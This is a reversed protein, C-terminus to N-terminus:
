QANGGHVGVPTIESVGESFSIVGVVIKREM